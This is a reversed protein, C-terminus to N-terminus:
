GSWSLMATLYYRPFYFILAVVINLSQHEFLAKCNVQPGYLAAECSGVQFAGGHLFVIVQFLNQPFIDRLVGVKRLSCWVKQPSGVLKQQAFTLIKSGGKTCGFDWSLLLTNQICTPHKLQGSMKSGFM